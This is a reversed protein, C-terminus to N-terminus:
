LEKSTEICRNWLVRCLKRLGQFGELPFNKSFRQIKSERVYWGLIERVRTVARLLISTVERKARLMTDAAEDDVSKEPLLSDLFDTSPLGRGFIIATELDGLYRLINDYNQKWVQDAFRLMGVDSDLFYLQLFLEEIESDYEELTNSIMCEFKPFQTESEM